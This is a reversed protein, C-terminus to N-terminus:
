IEDVTGISDRIAINKGLGPDLGFSWTCKTTMETAEGIRSGNRLQYLLQLGSHQTGLQDHASLTHSCWLRSPVEQNTQVCVCVIQERWSSLLEQVGSAM